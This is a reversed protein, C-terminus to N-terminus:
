ATPRLDVEAEIEEDTKKKLFLLSTLINVGAEHIFTEVPLEVSALVWCNRLIWGRIGEDAPGPNSLIGNPLVIGIRGGPRVWQVARQIFLQEPAMASVDNAGAVVQGTEKDRSWSKAVGDRYMALVDPDEIKIDTGFPPNTMLVDVSGLPISSKAEEVGPLHGGPFALSDMYYINGPKGTLMMVSM